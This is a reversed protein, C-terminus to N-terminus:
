LIDELFIKIGLLILVSGGIIEARKSFLSGFRKGIYVGAFSIFFTIIGIISATWMIQFQLACISIGVALADISTAIGQIILNKPTFIKDDNELPCEDNSEKSEMLMNIGISCLLILAIWHDIATITEKFLNGVYFGIIPMIGQFLGFTLACLLAKARTVKKSCMGNTVAIAFADMALSLAILVITVSDM